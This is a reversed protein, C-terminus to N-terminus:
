LLLKPPFGGFFWLIHFDLMIWNHPSSDVILYSEYPYITVYSIDFDLKDEADFYLNLLYGGSANKIMYAKRSGTAAHMRVNIDESGNFVLVSDNESINTSTFTHRVKSLDLDDKSYM